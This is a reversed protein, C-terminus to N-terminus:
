NTNSILVDDEKYIRVTGDSFYISLEKVVGFCPDGFLKNSISVKGSKMTELFLNTVDIVKRGKGYTVKTTTKKPTQNQNQYVVMTNVNVLKGSSLQPVQTYKGNQLWKRMGQILNITNVTPNYTNIFSATLAGQYEASVFTDASTQNDRCGSIMIVNCKTDTVVGQTTYTNKIDCNYTYKLDLVSGSHCADIITFLTVNSGLKNIFINKIQDDVIYGNTMCDIPCLAEDQGDPEDGNADKLYSGHGSYFLFLHVEKTNNTNSFNVLETLQKLINEKSPYLLGTQNDTMVTLQTDKFLNSGCLLQKMNETDNICGNLKNQTGTYNIGILLGKKIPLNSTM